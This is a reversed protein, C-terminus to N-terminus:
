GRRFLLFAGVLALAAAMLVLVPPSAVPISASAGTVIIGAGIRRFVSLPPATDETETVVNCTPCTPAGLGCTGIDYFLVGGPSVTLNQEFTVTTFPTVPANGFNFTVLQSAAALTFTQSNTGIVPGSYSGARATMVVTHLGPATPTYNLTVTGLTSGPFTAIYFGRTVQDGGSTFPCSIMQAQAAVSAAALLVLALIYRRAM